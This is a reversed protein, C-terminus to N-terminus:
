VQFSFPLLFTVDYKTLQPRPLLIVKHDTRIPVSFSAVRFREHSLSFPGLVFDVAQKFQIIMAFLIYQYFLYITIKGYRMPQWHYYVELPATPICKAGYSVRM